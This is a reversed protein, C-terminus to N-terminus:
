ESSGARDSGTGSADPQAASAVTTAGAHASANAAALAAIRQSLQAADISLNLNGSHEVLQKSQIFQEPDFVELLRLAAHVEHSSKANEAKRLLKSKRIRKTRTFRNYFALYANEEESPEHGADVNKRIQQARKIWAYITDRHIEAQDAADEMSLGKGRANCIAKIRWEDLLKM